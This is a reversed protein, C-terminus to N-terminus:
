ECIFLHEDSPASDKRNKCRRQSFLFSHGRISVLFFDMKNEELSVRALKREDAEVTLREEKSPSSYFEWEGDM